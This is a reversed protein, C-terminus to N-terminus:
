YAGEEVVARLRELMDAQIRRLARPAFMREFFGGLGGAGEWSSELIV